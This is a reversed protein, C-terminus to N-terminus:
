SENAFMIPEKPSDVHLDPNLLHVVVVSDNYCVICHIIHLNFQISIFIFYVYLNIHTYVDLIRVKM